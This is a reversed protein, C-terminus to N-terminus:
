ECFEGGDDGVQDGGGLAAAGVGDFEGAGYDHQDRQDGVVSVLARLRSANVGSSFDASATRCEPASRPSSQLGNSM